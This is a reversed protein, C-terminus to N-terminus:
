MRLCTNQQGYKGTSATKSPMGKVDSVRGRDADTAIKTVEGKKVVGVDDHSKSLAM